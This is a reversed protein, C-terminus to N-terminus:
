VNAMDNFLKLVDNDDLIIRVNPKGELPSIVGWAYSSVGINNNGVIYQNGSQTTAIFGEETKEVEEIPSSRKWRDSGAYGGYWSGYVCIVTESELTYEIICWKDPYEM